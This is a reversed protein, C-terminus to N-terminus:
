GGARKQLLVLRRLYTYNVGYEESLVRVTEGEAHRRRINVVDEVTLKWGRNPNTAAHNRGAKTAHEMNDHRNVWELNEPTNNQKDGDIHNVYTKGEVTPIFALAVARHVMMQKSGEGAKYLQVAFYGWETIRGSLTKHHRNRVRGHSSAEYIGEYGPIARWEEDGRFWVPREDAQHTHGCTPCAYEAM